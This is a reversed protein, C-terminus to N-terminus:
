YTVAANHPTTLAVREFWDDTYQPTVNRRDDPVIAVPPVNNSCPALTTDIRTRKM